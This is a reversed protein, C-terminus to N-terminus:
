PHSGKILYAKCLVNVSIASTDHVKPWSFRGSSFVLLGKWKCESNVCCMLLARTDSHQLALLIFLCYM